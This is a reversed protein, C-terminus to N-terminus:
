IHPIYSNWPIDKYVDPGLSRLTTTFALVILSSRALIYLPIAITIVRVPPKLWRLWRVATSRLESRGPFRDLLFAYLALPFSLLVPNVMIYLASLRWVVSEIHTPFAFKWPVLHLGGFLLRSAVVFLILRGKKDSSSTEHAYFTGLTLAGPIVSVVTTEKSGWKRVTQISIIHKTGMTPTSGLVVDRLQNFLHARLTVRGLLDLANPFISITVFTWNWIPSRPRGRRRHAVATSQTIAVQASVRSPPPRNHLFHNVTSHEEMPEGDLAPPSHELNPRHSDTIDEEFDITPHVMATDHDTTQAKMQVCTGVAVNQPKELWLAYTIINLVTFSFTMIELETVPLKVIWRVLCQVMFWTTQVVVFLKAFFDGKSKDCLEAHTIIPPDVLGAQILDVLEQFSLARIPGETAEEHFLFGGMQVYFGHSLTWKQHQHPSLPRRFWKRLDHYFSPNEEDAPLCFHTLTM